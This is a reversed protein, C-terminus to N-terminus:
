GALRHAQTKYHCVRIQVTEPERCFQLPPDSFQEQTNGQRFIMQAGDTQGITLTRYGSTSFPIDTGIGVNGADYYIDTGSEEWQGTTRVVGNALTYLKGDHTNIAIEGPVLQSATPKKGAVSSKRHVITTM